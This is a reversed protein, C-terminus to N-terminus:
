LLSSPYGESPEVGHPQNYRKSRELLPVPNWGHDIFVSAFLDMSANDHVLADCLRQLGLRWAQASDSNSTFLRTKKEDVSACFRAIPRTSRAGIEAPFKKLANCYRLLGEVYMDPNHINKSTALNLAARMETLWLFNKERRWALGAIDSNVSSVSMCCKLM